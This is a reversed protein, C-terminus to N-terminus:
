SKAKAAKATMGKVMTRELQWALVRKVSAKMVEEYLGEDKLWDEFRGGAQPGKPKKM